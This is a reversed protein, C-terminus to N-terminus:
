KLRLATQVSEAVYERQTDSLNSGSPLCLGTRFLTDSVGNIYAPANAFLPQQHMPKWLPRTEIGRSNCFEYVPQWSNGDTGPTNILITTLWRNAYFGAPEFLTRHGASGNNASELNLVRVYYDFNERRKTIRQQLVGLQARGAAATLESMTYNYGTESHQYWSATDRAQSALKKAKEILKENDSLLAGGGGTSIIKNTNFSFVSLTGYSGCRQGKIESGVAEAADEIVPIEFRDAVACIEEMKAPMGYLHVVLIAKPKKGKKIRDAIAKELLAPDMNWTETESDVFVPTAGLYTIPNATAVFTNTQCIVEDGREVGLLILALHLASTGSNLLAVNRGPVLQELGRAFKRNQESTIEGGSELVEQIYKGEDGSLHPTSLHIRQTKTSLHM